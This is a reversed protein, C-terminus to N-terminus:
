RPSLRLIRGTHGVVFTGIGGSAAQQYWNSNVDADDPAIFTLGDDRSLLMNRMGPIIVLGEPTSSVGLLNGGLGPDVREWHEGADVTKLVIGNQGVAFGVGDARVHLASLSEDGRRVLRWSDGRDDSIVVLGFEGVVIIRGADTIEVAYLHPDYGEEVFSSFATDPTSWTSGGDTSIQVAGFGGVAVALGDAHLDVSLLREEVDAARREWENNGNRVLVLGMQGVAIMRDGELATDLLALETAADEASWSSGGDRTIVVTGRDGVALGRAGDTAFSIGFLPRHASGEHVLQMSIMANDGEAWTMGAGLAVALVAMGPVARLRRYVAHVAAKFMSGVRDRTWAACSMM